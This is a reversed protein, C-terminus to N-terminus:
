RKPTDGNQNTATKVMSWICCDVRCDSGLSILLLMDYKVIHLLFLFSIGSKCGVLVKPVDPCYHDLEPLWKEEVNELSDRNDFSFCVLFVDTHLYALPRM